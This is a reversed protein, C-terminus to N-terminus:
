PLFEFKEIIVETGRQLPNRNNGYVYLHLHVTESAPIPVGSTFVHQAIPTLSTQPTSGRVTRFTVRGPRWDIWHTLTGAPAEFRVSNAPVVFPQIVYQANKDVPEGWRSIEVDMEGSAGTADSTFFALVASPELHSVDRVVFRYSGYGLSRSLEVEASTWHDGKRAIRLHLFGNDDVWGNSADYSNRVGGPNNDAQRVEWEYGSFRLTKLSSKSPIGKTVAVALVHTGKEPLMAATAPPVYGDDCLLAAYSVGPHSSGSWTSDKQIQTFPHAAYPQVWWVGSLAFLVIRQGPRAGRVRGELPETKDPDGEGAPPVSTFEISAQPPLAASRCGALIVWGTAALTVSALTRSCFSAHIM